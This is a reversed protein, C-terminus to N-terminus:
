CCVVWWRLCGPLWHTAVFWSWRTNAWRHWSSLRKQIVFISTKLDQTDFFLNANGYCCSLCGWAAFWLELADAVFPPEGVLGVCGCSLNQSNWCRRNRNLRWPWLNKEHAFVVSVHFVVHRIVVAWGWSQCPPLPEQPWRCPCRFSRSSALHAQLSSMRRRCMSIWPWFVSSVCPFFVSVRCFRWVEVSVELDLRIHWFLQEKSETQDNTTSRRSYGRVKQWHKTQFNWLPPLTNM